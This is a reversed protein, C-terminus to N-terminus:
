RLLTHIDSWPLLIETRGMVYPAIEYPNYVYTIGEETSYFNDNPVVDGLSYGLNRLERETTADETQELLRRVLLDHLAEFYDDIFLDEEHVPEGTSLNYNHVLLYSYGHAGGTYSYGDEAYSWIGKALGLEYGYIYLTENFGSRSDTHDIYWEQAMPLTSHVYDTHKWAMYAEMAQQPQMDAFAEGFLTAKLSRQVKSLVSDPAPMRVPYTYSLEVILSDRQEPTLYVVKQMAYPVTLVKSLNMTQVAGCVASVLGIFLLLSWSWIISKRM